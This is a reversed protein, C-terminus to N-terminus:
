RDYAPRLLLLFHELTFASVLILRKPLEREGLGLNKSGRM